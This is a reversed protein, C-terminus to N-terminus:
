IGDYFLDGDKTYTLKYGFDKEFKNIIEKM